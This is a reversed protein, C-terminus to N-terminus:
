TLARWSYESYKSNPLGRLFIADGALRAAAVPQRASPSPHVSAAALLYRQTTLHASCLDSAIRGILPEFARRAAIAEVRDAPVLDGWNAGMPLLYDPFQQQGQSQVEQAQLCPM